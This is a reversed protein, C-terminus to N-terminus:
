RGDDLVVLGHTRDLDGDRTVVGVLADFPALYPQVDREFEAREAPELKAVAMAEIADLDSWTLARHDAGARAVLDRFRPQDALSDGPSTDLVARVFAPDLGIIVLEGSVAWSVSTLERGGLEVGDGPALGDEGLLPLLDALDLTVITTGAHDDETLGLGALTALNRVSRFLDAAAEADTALAAVGVLPGEGDPLVVLGTEGLWGILGDVGGVPGLLRELEDQASEADTGAAIALAERITDGVAHGEVLVATDAPLREPLRSPGDPTDPSAATRPAAGDAVLADAEVRLSGAAWAPVLESLDPRSPADPREALRDLVLGLDVYTLSLRETPLAAVADEFRPSTALGGDGGRQLAAEVSAEDGLLLVGDTAAALLREGDHELLVTAPAGPQDTVTAGAEVAVDRVWGIARVEDTATAIALGHRDHGTADAPGTTAAPPPGMAFAAQGGFWTAIDASWTQRGDTAAELLRDYLETLKRDLSAQDAFGPFASLFEGLAAEQDGPLDARLEAYVVTDPPAWRAVTSAASAGTLLIAGAITATTALGVVVLAVAWRWRSAPQRSRQPPLAAETPASARGLEEITAQPHSAQEDTTPDSM